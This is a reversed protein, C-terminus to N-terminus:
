GGYPCDQVLNNRVKIETTQVVKVSATLLLIVVGVWHRVVHDRKMLGHMPTANDRNDTRYNTRSVVDVTM